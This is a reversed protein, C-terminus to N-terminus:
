WASEPLLKARTPTALRIGLWGAAFRLFPTEALVSKGMRRRRAARERRAYGKRDHSSPLARLPRYTGSRPEPNRRHRSLGSTRTSPRGTAAAAFPNGECRGRVAFRIRLAVNESRAPALDPIHAAVVHQVIHADVGIGPEPIDSGTPRSFGPSQHQEHASITLLCQSPKEAVPYEAAVARM